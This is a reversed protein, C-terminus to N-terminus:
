STKALLEEIKKALFQLNEDTSMRHDADEILNVEVDHSTLQKALKESISFPVDEDKKGHLLIVPVDIKIKEHLVLNKNGDEILDMTIPYPTDSYESSLDYIGESRLIQKQNEDFLDWMLDKTFDPASAIGILGRIRDIRKLTLLLMIWGGM